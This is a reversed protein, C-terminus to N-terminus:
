LGNRNYTKSPDTQECYYSSHKIMRVADCDNQTLKSTAHDPISKGTLAWATASTVTYTTCGSLLAASLIAIWKTMCYQLM